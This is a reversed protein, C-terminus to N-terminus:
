EMTELVALGKHEQKIIKHNYFFEEYEFLINLSNDESGDDVCLIEYEYSDQKLINDLCERLFKSSNYVPIVISLEICYPTMEVMNM